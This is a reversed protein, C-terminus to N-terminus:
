RRASLWRSDQKGQFLNSFLPIAFLVSVSSRFIPGFWPMYLLDSFLMSSIVSVTIAPARANAWTGDMVSEAADPAGPALTVMFTM